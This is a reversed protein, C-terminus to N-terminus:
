SNRTFDYFSILDDLAEHFRAMAQQSNKYHKYHTDKLWRGYCCVDIIIIKAISGSVALIAKRWRERAELQAETFGREGGRIPDLNMTMGPTQASIVFDRYLKNAAFYENDDIIGRRYYHDIPVQSARLEFGGNKGLEIRVDNLGIRADTLVHEKIARVKKKVEEDLSVIKPKAPKPVKHIKIELETIM